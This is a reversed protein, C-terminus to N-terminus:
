VISSRSIGYKRRSAVSASNTWCRSRGHHRTHHPRRGKPLPQPEALSACPIDAAGSPLCFPSTALAGPVLRTGASGHHVQSRLSPVASPAETLVLETCEALGESPSSSAPRKKEAYAKSARPRSSLGTSASRRTATATWCAREGSRVFPSWHACEQLRRHASSSHCIGTVDLADWQMGTRLVLLIEDTAAPRTRAPRSLRLPHPPRRCFRSSRPGHGTPCAGVAMAASSVWRLGGSGM